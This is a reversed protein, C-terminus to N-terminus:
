CCQSLTNEIIREVRKFSKNIRKTSDRSFARVAALASDRDSVADSLESQLETVLAALTDKDGTNKDTSNGSGSGTGNGNGNIKILLDM